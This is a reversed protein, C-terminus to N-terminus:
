EQNEISKLFVIRTNDNKHNRIPKVKEQPIYHYFVILQQFRVPEYELVSTMEVTMETMENLFHSVVFSEKYVKLFLFSIIYFSSFKKKIM